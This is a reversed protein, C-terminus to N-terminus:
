DATAGERVGTRSETLLDVLSRARSKESIEFAEEAYGAGPNLKSLQMLIEICLEYHQQVGSFYSTRLDPNEVNSRLTEIDKLSRRIFSLAAESKRARQSARALNFVTDIIIGKDGLQESLELAKGYVKLANEAQGLRLLVDGERNLVLAQGQRDGISEYFWQLKQLLQLAKQSHGEAEYVEALESLANVESRAKGAARSEKLCREYLSRAEAFEGLLYHARAVKAMTVTAMDQAGVEQFLQLASKYNNLAIPAAKLNEFAQGLANLSIAQSHRDGISKFVESAERYLKLAGSEDRGLSHTLGLGILALGEGAQNNIEHYLSRAQSIEEKAKDPEGLTGAINGAFLHVKARGKRDDDFLKAVREFQRSSNLLDGKAYTVEALNSLTMACANKTNANTAECGGLLSLAKNLYDRALANDGLYSQLLGLQSLARAEGLHDDAKAGLNAATQYRNSAQTYQSLSFFLDGSKLKANSARAFNGAAAWITAAKDFSETAERRAPETWNTRM